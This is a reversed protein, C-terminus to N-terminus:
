PLLDRDVNQLAVDAMKAVEAETYTKAPQSKEASDAAEENVVGCGLRELQEITQRSYYLENQLGVVLARLSQDDCPERALLADRDFRQERLEAAAARARLRTLEKAVAIGSGNFEHQLVDVPNVPGQVADEDDRGAVGSAPIAEQKQHESIMQRMFFCQSRLVQQDALSLKLSLAQISQSRGDLVVETAGAPIAELAQQTLSELIEPQQPAPLGLEGAMIQCERAGQRVRNFAALLEDKGMVYSAKFQEFQVQM